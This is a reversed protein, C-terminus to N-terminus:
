VIVGTPHLLYLLLHPPPPKTAMHPGQWGAPVAGLLLPLFLMRAGELHSTEEGESFYGSPHGTDMWLYTLAQTQWQM